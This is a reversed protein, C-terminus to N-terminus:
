QSAMFGLEEKRPYDKAELRNLGLLERLLLLFEQLGPLILVLVLLLVNQPLVAAMEVQLDVELLDKKIPIPHFGM